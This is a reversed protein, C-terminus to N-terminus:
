ECKKQWFIWIIEVKKVRNKDTEDGYFNWIFTFMLEIFKSGSFFGFPINWAHDNSPAYYTYIAPWTYGWLKAVINAYFHSVQILEACFKSNQYIKIACWDFPHVWNKLYFVCVSGHYVSSKMSVYSPKNGLPRVVILTNGVLARKKKHEFLIEKRM